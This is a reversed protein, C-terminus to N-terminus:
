CACIGPGGVRVVAGAIDVELEVSHSKAATGGCADWIIPVFQTEDDVPLVLRGAKAEHRWQFLHQLSIDHRRWM